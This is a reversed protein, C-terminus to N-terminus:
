KRYFFIGFAAEERRSAFCGKPFRLLGKFYRFSIKFLPYSCLKEEAKRPAKRAVQGQWLYTHIKRPM